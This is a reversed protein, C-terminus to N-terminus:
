AKAVTNLKIIADSKQTKAMQLRYGLLRWHPMLKLEIEEEEMEIKIKKEIYNNGKM